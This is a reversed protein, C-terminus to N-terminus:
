CKNSLTSGDDHDDYNEDFCGIWVLDGKGYIYFGKSPEVHASNRDFDLALSGNLTAVDVVNTESREIGAQEDADLWKISIIRSPCNRGQQLTLHMSRTSVKCLKQQSSLTKQVTIGRPLYDYPRLTSDSADSTSASYSPSPSKTRSEPDIFEAPTFDTRITNIEHKSANTQDGSSDQSTQEAAANSTVDADPILQSSHLEDISGTVSEEDRQQQHESGPSTLRRVTLSSLSPAVTSMSPTWHAPPLVVSENPHNFPRRKDRIVGRIETELASNFRQVVGHLRSKPEMTWAPLIWGDYLRGHSRAIHFHGHSRIFLACLYCASKSSAIYRPCPRAPHLEYFLLLQIEAHIKDLRKMGSSFQSEIQPLKKHALSGLSSILGLKKQRSWHPYFRELSEVFTTTSIPPLFTQQPLQQLIEVSITKFLSYRRAASILRHCVNSYQNLKAVGTPLSELTTPNVSTPPNVRSLSRLDKELDNDYICRLLNVLLEVDLPENAANEFAEFSSYLALTKSRLSMLQTPSIERNPKLSPDHVTDHLLKLLPTRKRARISLKSHKSRLRALIRERDFSVIERFLDLDAAYKNKKLAAVELVDALKRFGEQAEELCGSNSALRIILGSNPRDEEICVAMVRNRNDTHASIFALNDAIEIERKLPLIRDEGDRALAPTDNNEPHAPVENLVWLFKINQILTTCLQDEM